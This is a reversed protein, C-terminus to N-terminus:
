HSLERSYYDNLLQQAEDRTTTAIQADTYHPVTRLFRDLYPPLPQPPEPASPIAYRVASGDLGRWFEDESV